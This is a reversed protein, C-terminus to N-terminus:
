GEKIWKGTRFKWDRSRSLKLYGIIKYFIFSKEDWVEKTEYKGIEANAWDCLSLVETDEKNSVVTHQWNYKIKGWCYRWVSGWIIGMGERMTWVVNSKM